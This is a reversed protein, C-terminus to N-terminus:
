SILFKNLCKQTDTKIEMNIKEWILTGAACACCAEVGTLRFTTVNGNREEKM